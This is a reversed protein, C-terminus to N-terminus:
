LIKGKRTSVGKIVEVDEEIVPEKNPDIKQSFYELLEPITVVGGGVRIQLGYIRQATLRKEIEDLLNIYDFDVRSFNISVPIVKSDEKQAEIIDEEYDSVFKVLSEYQGQTIPKNDYTFEIFPAGGGDVVIRATIQSMQLRASVANMASGRQFYGREELAATTKPDIITFIKGFVPNHAGRCYNANNAVIYQRDTIVLVAGSDDGYSANKEALLLFKMFGTLPMGGTPRTYPTAFESILEDVDVDFSTANNTNGRSFLKGLMEDTSISSARKVIDNDYEEM